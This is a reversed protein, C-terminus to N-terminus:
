EKSFEEGISGVFQLLYYVDSVITEFNQPLVNHNDMLYRFFIETISEKLSEPSAFEFLLNLQRINREGDLNNENTM